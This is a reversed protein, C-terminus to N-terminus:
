PVAAEVVQIFEVRGRPVVVEGDVPIADSGPQLTRAHRLTLLPGRSAWLVGEFTRGTDLNVIVQRRTLSRWGRM